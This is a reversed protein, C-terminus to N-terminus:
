VTLITQRSVWFIPVNVVTQWSRIGFWECRMHLNALNRGARLATWVLTKTDFGPPFVIAGILILIQRAAVSIATPRADLAARACPIKPGAAPGTWMDIPPADVAAGSSARPAFTQFGAAM